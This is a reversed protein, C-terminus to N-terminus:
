RADVSHVQVSALCQHPLLTTTMQQAAAPSPSVGTVSKDATGVPETPDDIDALLPRRCHTRPPPPITASASPTVPPHYRDRGLVSSEVCTTSAQESTDDGLLEILEVHIVTSCGFPLTLVICVFASDIFDVFYLTQIIYFM